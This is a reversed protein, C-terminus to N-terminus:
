RTNHRVKFYHTVGMYDWKLHMRDFKPDWLDIGFEKQGVKCMFILCYTKETPWTSEDCVDFRISDPEFALDSILRNGTDALDLIQGLLGIEECTLNSRAKKIVAEYKQPLM